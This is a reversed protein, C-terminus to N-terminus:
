EEITQAQKIWKQATRPNVGLENALAAVSKHGNAQYLTVFADKAVPEHVNAGQENKNAGQESTNATTRTVTTSEPKHGDSYGVLSVTLITTMVVAVSWIWLGAGSLVAGIEVHQAYAAISPSMTSVYALSSLGILAWMIRRQGDKTTFKLRSFAFAFSVAEVASMAVALILSVAKWWGWSADLYIGESAMLASVWRSTSAVAAFVIIAGATTIRINKM